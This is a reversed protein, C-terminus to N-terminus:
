FQAHTDPSNTISLEIQTRSASARRDCASRTIQNAVKNLPTTRSPITIFKFACPPMIKCNSTVVKL